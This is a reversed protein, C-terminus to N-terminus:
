SATGATQTATWNLDVSAISGTPLSATNFMEVTVTFSHAENLAWNGISCGVSPSSSNCGPVTLAGTTTVSNPFAENTGAATLGALSDCAGYYPLSTHGYICYGTTNDFITLNVYNTLSGTTAADRSAALAMSGTLSGSNTITLTGTAIDGPAMGTANSLVISTSTLTLTGTAFTNGANTVSANFSAFSGAGVVSGILGLGFLSLLLKKVLSRAGSPRSNGVAPVSAAVGRGVTALPQQGADTARLRGWWFSRRGMHRGGDAAM